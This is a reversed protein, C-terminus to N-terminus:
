GFARGSGKATPGFAPNGRRRAAMSAVAGVADRVVACLVGDVCARSSSPM